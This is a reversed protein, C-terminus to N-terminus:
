EMGLEAVGHKRWALVAGAVAWLAALPLLSARGGLGFAGGWNRDTAGLKWFSTQLALYPSPWREVSLPMMLQETSLGPWPQPNVAVAAVNFLASGFAVLFLLLAPASRGRGLWPVLGLALLPLAPILHRPAYAYGGWWMYYGSTYTLL